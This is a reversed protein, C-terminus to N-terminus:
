QCMGSRTYKKLVGDIKKKLEPTDAGIISQQNGSPEQNAIVIYNPANLAVKEIATSPDKLWPLSLLFFAIDYKFKTLDVNDINDEIISFRSDNRSEILGETFKREPDISFVTKVDSKICLKKALGIGAGIDLVTKYSLNELLGSLHWKLVFSHIYPGCRRLSDL